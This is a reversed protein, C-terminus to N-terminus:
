ARPRTRCNKVLPQAPSRRHRNGGPPPTKWAAKNAVTPTFAGPNTAVILGSFFIACILWVAALLPFYGYGAVAGYTWRFVKTSPRLTRTMGQAAKWRM